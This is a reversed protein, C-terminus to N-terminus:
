QIIEGNPSIDFSTDGYNWYNWPESYMEDDIPGEIKVDFNGDSNFDFEIEVKMFPSNGKYKKDCFEKLSRQMSDSLLFKRTDIYVGKMEEWNLDKTTDIVVSYYMSRYNFDEVHKVYNYKGKIEKRFSGLEKVNINPLSLSYAVSLIIIPAIIIFFSLLLFIVSRKKKKNISIILFIITILIAIWILHIFEM